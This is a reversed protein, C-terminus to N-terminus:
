SFFNSTSFTPLKGWLLDVCRAYRSSDHRITQTLHIFRLRLMFDANSLEDRDPYVPASKITSMIPLSAVRPIIFFISVHRM